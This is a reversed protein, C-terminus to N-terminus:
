KAWRAERREAAARDADPDRPPLKAMEHVVHVAARHAAAAEAEARRRGEEVGVAWGACWADVYADWREGTPLPEFELPDTM